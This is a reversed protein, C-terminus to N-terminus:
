AAEVLTLTATWLDAALWTPALDLIVANVSLDPTVCWLATVDRHAVTLTALDADSLFPLSLSAQRRPISGSQLADNAAGTGDDLLRVVSVFSPYAWGSYGDVWLTLDGLAFGSAAVIHLELDVTVAASVLTIETAGSFSAGGYWGLAFGAKSVRLKYIGAALSLTYVGSGDTTTSGISVGTMDYAAVDATVVAAGSGTITGTLTVSM